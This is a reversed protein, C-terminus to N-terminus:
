LIHSRRGIMVFFGGERGGSLVMGIEAMVCGLKSGRELIEFLQEDPYISAFPITKPISNVYEFGTRDFWDLVEGLTHKSEHPNKYQDMFWARKKRDGVTGDRLHPDLWQFRNGCANFIARRIDTFIRGYTNYLGVIIYGGRKVLRAISQFGGFPDGTHHLVGNCIVLSFTDPKFVPRFLNMQLFACNEIQYRSRFGNALRLSNLCIDTGFVTRGWVTGLFNTLQGTGCGVELVTAGHPIQEDLLRAFVGKQAKERLRETSDLDDYNPFPNEEYFSKVMDTVDAESSAWENPEFLLPIGTDCHYKRACSVCAFNDRGFDLSGGCQPCAFIPTNDRVLAPISGPAKESMHDHQLVAPQLQAGTHDRPLGIHCAETRKM